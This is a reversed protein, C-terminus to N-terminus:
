GTQTDLLTGLDATNRASPTRVTVPENIRPFRCGLAIFQDLSNTQRERSAKDTAAQQAAKLGEFTVTGRYHTTRAGGVTEAGIKEANRSGTLLTSPVIPSGEVQRPLLGYSQNDVSLLGWGASRRFM